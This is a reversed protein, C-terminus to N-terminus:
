LASPYTEPPEGATWGSDHELPRLATTEDLHVYVDFQRPLRAGFYHSWRETEPRYIV